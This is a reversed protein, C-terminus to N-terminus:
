ASQGLYSILFSGSWGCAARRRSCSLQTLSRTTARPRAVPGAVPRVHRYAADGQGIRRLPRTSNASARRDVDAGVLALRRHRTCSDACDGLERMTGLVLVRQRGAGVGRAARDRGADLGPNANYADNILTAKGLQEWAVACGRRMPMAAIGAAAVEDSM